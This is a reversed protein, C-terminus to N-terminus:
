RPPAMVKAILDHDTADTIQVQAFEGVALTHGDAVHVVGDIEPADGMGRAIALVSKKRGIKGHAHADVLVTMKRGIMESLKRASILSQTEMFRALRAGKLEEDVPHELTNAKAGEVPSYPFAGVRDLRAQRLFDTLTDFDAETEGPFGVIFTSRLTISPLTRRWASIRDLMKEPAAPRKMARLIKPSAHQLPVDLYPLVGTHRTDTDGHRALSEAMIEVLEDVAPYPYIYHLRVWAGYQKALRDLEEVLSSIRTKIPRGGAFGTKYRLDSGYAATDQSVVILEKVGSLFLKEAQLFVEAIPTSRLAGRLAPIVCFTCHHNCGESIKLYAYHRPTLKIGTDPILSADPQHPPPLHRHVAKMVADDAHPPTVALVNPHHKRIFDGKERAGLCGTVIVKGNEAIAEAIADLSEAIADDIFGCTNVIVLDADTYNAATRYGESKLRSLITESDVLAKPCGL